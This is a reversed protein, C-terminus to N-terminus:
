DEEAFRILPGSLKSEDISMGITDAIRENLAMVVDAIYHIQSSGLSERQIVRQVLAATTEGVEGGDVFNGGFAGARVLKPSFAMVAGHRRAGWVLLRRVAASNYVGTDPIMLVVDCTSNNLADIASLFDDRSARVLRADLGARETARAIRDATRRTRGSHLIALCNPSRQVAEVFSVQREPEVDSTVIHLRDRQQSDEIGALVDAANPTMMSIVVADTTAALALHAMTPGTAVVVSPRERAISSAIAKAESRPEFVIEVLATGSQRLRNRFAKIPELYVDKPESLLVVKQGPPGTLACAESAGVGLSAFLLVAFGILRPAIASRHLQGSSARM